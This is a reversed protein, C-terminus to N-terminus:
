QWAFRLEAFASLGQMRFGAATQYDRDFLNEIRANLRLTDSIAIQGTLNVLAYGPLDVGGFDERDGSALLSLGIRHRGIDKSASITASEEARRLLRVDDVPNRASQRVLSTRISYGDGRFGWTLEAGRIEAKAINRLTFTDLDFEILDDIDNRYLELSVTHRGGPRYRLGVQMERALEPALDPNGGFGFRDTADPARFARGLGAQLTWDENLSFAYEANWTTEGGFADHDTYRVAVFTQHRQYSWQDQLFLASSRTNEAFGSGFSLSSADEDVYYIGGTIVHSDGSYSLQWDASLRSSEVFDDSQNQIIDDTMHGLLLRSVLAAALPTRLEVATSRNEFDQDLPAQFFDLYETTGTASWHSLSIFSKGVNIGGHLNVTTNDYGRDIDSGTTPPFGATENYNATIGFEGREGSAGLSLNASQTEFSGGGMKIEGYAPDSRRTIVNIVGGIADTGFLASRAGKVIEVREIMEPAINQIAAGGITGPNMRVGDILVLTHNSETGRLFVSTAQGPGGNRGIDIGAEFRLLEALDSALSLDIDDRTIVEVPVIADALPIETRTATVVITETPEDNQSWAPTTAVALTAALIIRRMREGRAHAGCATFGWHQSRHLPIPTSTRVGFSARRATRTFVLGTEPSVLPRFSGARDAVGEWSVM